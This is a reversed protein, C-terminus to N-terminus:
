DPEAEEPELMIDLMDELVDIRAFDREDTAKVHEDLLEILDPDHELLM